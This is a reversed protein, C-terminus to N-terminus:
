MSLRLSSLHDAIQQFASNLTAADPAFFYYPANPQTAIGKLLTQLSSSVQGEQIVYIAIGAAKINAALLKLRADMGPEGASGAGFAANYSDGYGANNQGDTALVIAQQTQQQNSTSESFPDTPTLMRWAWGLGSVQNTDGSPSPLANIANLITAKDNTLPTIGQTLSPTCSQRRPAACGSGPEGEPGIPWWASTWTKGGGTYDGEYIDADDTSNGDAIYHEYVSGKWNSPPQSMLLVPSNNVKWFNVIPAGTKPDVFGPPAPVTTTLASNYSQSALWVNVKGNWPVLGIKLNNATTNAGYLINVLTTVATQAAQERSLGGGADTTAMSGSLDLSVVVELPLIQRTIQASAHVQMTPVDLVNLFTTPLSASATLMISNGDDSPTITPGEVTSGLFGSPYNANFYMAIDSDRNSSSMIRGGALGAADVAQTLRSKVLYGRATDVSLGIAGVLPTLSLATIVAIAGRHCRRLASDRRKAHKPQAFIRKTM